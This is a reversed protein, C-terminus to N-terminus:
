NVDFEVPYHDSISKVMEQSLNFEEEFKFAQGLGSVSKIISEGMIVIRDYPCKSAAATTDVSDDILWLYNSSQRLPIQSWYKKAVYSCGANFDGM